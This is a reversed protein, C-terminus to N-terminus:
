FDVQKIMSEGDEGSLGVRGGTTEQGSASSGYIFLM